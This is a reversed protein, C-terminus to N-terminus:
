LKYLVLGTIAVALADTTDDKFAATNIKLLLSVMRDVESKGASGSGAVTSKVTNPAYEMVPLNNEAAALLVVGRAEAVSIATKLNKQFLLTEIALIDPQHRILLNDLSSKIQTLYIASHTGPKSEILGCDILSPKKSSGEVVAWGLRHTGPDIGFVKM